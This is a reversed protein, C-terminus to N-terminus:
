RKMMAILAGILLCTQTITLLVLSKIWAQRNKEREISNDKFMELSNLRATISPNDRGQGFYLDRVVQNHSYFEENDGV